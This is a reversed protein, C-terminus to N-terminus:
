KMEQIQNYWDQWAPYNEVVQKANEKFPATDIDEMLTMGNAVCEEILASENDVVMQDVQDGM